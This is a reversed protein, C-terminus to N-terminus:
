AESNPTHKVLRDKYEAAESQNSVFKSIEAVITPILVLGIVILWHNLGLPVVGFFSALPPVVVLLAFLAVMSFAGLALLPNDRINSRFISRGSRATFIHLIASWGILLFAMTQGTAYSPLCVDSVVVFAGVYFGILAISVFTFSQRAMKFLLGKFVSEGRRVPNNQMIGPEPKERAIFLGPVGVGIVNILLIMIPTLPLHWGLLLAILMLTVESFNCSLLFYITKRVNAYVGRGRHIAAVITSFNDDILVMDAASKSVETGTIGMAVGVDAAKLAPADNVGDGTMAVVENHEQWAEVIRIKDEPSVRAYVCYQAVNEILEEDSMESLDLGTIVKGGDSLLGIQRAIAEATTAHDGTIMVTRIGANKAINIAETAEPRPPDIIGIIGEFFLNKELEELKDSEPLADVRKSGLAIMRLADQAFHNHMDERARLEEPTAVAFPVRDFAGKTLVLYGGEPCQHVTTMMKRDSSFTVEAVRPYRQELEFKKGGKATFLRLIAAETPDGIIQLEGDEDLEAVANSALTFKDLLEMQTASFECSDKFPEAGSQWLRQIAMRNQTLTGTKDSCIVSTSGLTEVAVLKRILANKKVMETVGRTLILTVILSLTEPVAAVALAVAVFLMEWVDAGQMLEIFFIALAATIAIFSIVKGVGDLRAQLPTRLKQADNLYGAIHGMQTNMGTAVVLAKARGATVLCGSFIMNLQDAVAVKGTLVVNSDKEVPMSEGTLISEDSMFDTSELLHADASIKDGASLLIIDGPVLEASDVEQQRGDRLVLSLPSSMSKLAHLAREAGREQTVALTMNLIVIGIIVFFETLGKGGEQTAMFLSIAAAAILIITPADRLNHLIKKFVGESKQEDFQNKGYHQQKAAISDSDLGTESNSELQELLSERDIEHWGM